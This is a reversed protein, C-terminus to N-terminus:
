GDNPEWTHLFNLEVNAAETLDPRVSRKGGITAPGYEVKLPAGTASDPSRYGELFFLGIRDYKRNGDVGTDYPLVMQCRVRSCEVISAPAVDPLSSERSAVVDEVELILAPSGVESTEMQQWGVPSVGSRVSNVLASYAESCCADPSAPVQVTIKPISVVVGVHHGDKSRRVKATVTKGDSCGDGNIRADVEAFSDQPLARHVFDSVRSMAATDIVATVSSCQVDVSLNVHETHGPDTLTLSDSKGSCMIQVSPSAGAEDVVEFLRVSHRTEHIESIFDGSLSGVEGLSHIRNKSRHLTEVMHRMQVHLRSSICSSSSTVGAADRQCAPRSDPIRVDSQDESLLLTMDLGAVRLRVKATDVDNANARVPRSGTGEEETGDMCDFFLDSQGLPSQLDGDANGGDDGANQSLRARADAYQILSMSHAPILCLPM